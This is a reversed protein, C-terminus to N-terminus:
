ISLLCHTGLLSPNLPPPPVNSPQGNRSDESDDPGTETGTIDDSHIPLPLNTKVTSSPCSSSIESSGIGAKM